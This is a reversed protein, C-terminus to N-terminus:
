NAKQLAQQIQDEFFGIIIENGIQLVPVAMQSTKELIEDRYKEEENIDREEFKIKKTKFYDRAKQCWPSTPTTYMIIAM